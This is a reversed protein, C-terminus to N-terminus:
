LPLPDPRSQLPLTHSHLVAQISAQPHWPAALCQLQFYAFLRRRGVGLRWDPRLWTYALLALAIPIVTPHCAKMQV